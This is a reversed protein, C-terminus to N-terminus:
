KGQYNDIISDDDDSDDSRFGMIKEELTTKSIPMDHTAQVMDRLKTQATTASSIHFFKSVNKGRKLM